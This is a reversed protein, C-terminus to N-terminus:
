REVIQHLSNRVDDMSAMTSAAPPLFPVIDLYSEYSKQRMIKDYGDRFTSDGVRASAFACVYTVNPLTDDLQFLYAALTALAVGKSHGTFYLKPSESMDEKTERMMELVIDTSANWLGRVAGYFGSHVRGPLVVM